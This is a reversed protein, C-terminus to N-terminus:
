IKKEEKDLYNLWLLDYDENLINIEEKFGNTWVVKSSIIFSKYTIFDTYVNEKLIKTSHDWTELM